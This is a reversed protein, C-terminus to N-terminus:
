ILIIKFNQLVELTVDQRGARYEVRNNTEDSLGAVPCPSLKGPDQASTNRHNEEGQTLLQARETNM